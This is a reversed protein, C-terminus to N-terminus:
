YAACQPSGNVTRVSCEAMEVKIDASVNGFCLLCIQFDSNDTASTRDYGYLCTAVCQVEKESTELPLM